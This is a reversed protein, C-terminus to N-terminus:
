QMWDLDYRTIWYFIEGCAAIAKMMKSIDNKTELSLPFKLRGLCINATVFVDLM